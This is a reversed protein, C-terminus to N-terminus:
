AAAAAGVFQVGLYFASRRVIECRYARGFGCRLEFRPPMAAIDAPRIKAGTESMDLITGEMVEARGEIVISARRITRKRPSGRRDSRAAAALATKTGTVYIQEGLLIVRLSQALAAPELTAPLYGDLGADVYAMLDARTAGGDLIVASAEPYMRKVFTVDAEPISGQESALMLVLEPEEFSGAAGACADAGAFSGVIEFGVSTLGRALARRGILTSGALCFTTRVM